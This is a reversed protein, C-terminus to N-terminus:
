RGIGRAEPGGGFVLGAPVLFGEVLLKDAVVEFAYVEVFGAGSYLQGVIDDFFCAFFVDLAVLQEGAFFESKRFLSIANRM